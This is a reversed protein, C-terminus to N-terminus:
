KSRTLIEQTNIMRQIQPWLTKLHEEPPSPLEPLFGLIPVQCVKELMAVNDKEMETPHSPWDNVLIGTVPIKKQLAYSVTLLTHNITGLGPRAVIILPMNLNQILDATMLTGEKGDALPVGLGGAGEVLVLDNSDLLLQIQKKIQSFDINVGEIKAALHPSVGTELTYTCYMEQKEKLGLVKRYVEVDEAVLGGNRNVTGSQIPKYPIAKIGEERFLAALCATVLTKGVGTDTGTIFFGNKM